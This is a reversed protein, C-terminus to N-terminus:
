EAAIAYHPVLERDKKVMALPVINSQRRATVKVEEIFGADALLHPSTEELRSRYAEMARREARAALWRRFWGTKAQALSDLDFEEPRPQQLLESNVMFLFAKGLM